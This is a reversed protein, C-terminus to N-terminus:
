DEDEGDRTRPQKKGKKSKQNVDELAVDVLTWLDRIIDTRLRIDPHKKRIDTRMQFVAQAQEQAPLDRLVYLM